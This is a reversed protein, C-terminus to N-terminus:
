MNSYISELRQRMKIGVTEYNFNDLVYRQANAAKEKMEDRHKYAWRMERRLDNVDVDAWKQDETYWQPNTRDGTIKRYKPKIWIGANDDLYETVGGAKTAIIPKGSLTAEIMPIGWGEGRHPLVFCDFTKHYRWVQERSLLADCVYLPAYYRQKIRKKIQLIRSRLEILNRKGFGNIYTKIYLAVDDSPTFETWYATLLATPNKREGWEFMSYFKYEGADEVMFPKHTNVKPNNAEPIIYVPTTVGSREIAAKTNEDATWIEDCGNAGKVFDLPLRDTEWILRGIVYHGPKAHKHYINPTTHIIQVKADNKKGITEFVPVYHRGHDASELTFQLPEGAVDVGAALLAMIDTRNAEGYGSYDIIAGSYIVSTM